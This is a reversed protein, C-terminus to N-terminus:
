LDLCKKSIKVKWFNGAIRYSNQEMYRHDNRFWMSSNNYVYTLFLGLSIVLFYGIVCPTNHLQTSNIPTLRLSDWVLENFWWKVLIFSLFRRDIKQAMFTLSFHIHFKPNLYNSHFILCVDLCSSCVLKGYFRKFICLIYNM